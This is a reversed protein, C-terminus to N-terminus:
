HLCLLSYMQRVGPVRGMHVPVAVILLENDLTQLVEKRTSPRTIDILEANDAKLGRAISEIVKRTTGTPSFCVLKVNQIKMQRGGM